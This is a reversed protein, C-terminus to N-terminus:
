GINKDMWSTTSEPIEECGCDNTPNCIQECQYAFRQNKIGRQMMEVVPKTLTQEKVRFHITHHSSVVIHIEAIWDCRILKKGDADIAIM